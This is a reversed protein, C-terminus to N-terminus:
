TILKYTKYIINRKTSEYNRFINMTDRYNLFVIKRVEGIQNLNTDDIYPQKNNIIEAIYYVHKYCIDNSGIFYEVFNQNSTIIIDNSNYGTEETFERIACTLISENNNRRGKPISYEQETYKSNYLNDYVLDYINLTDYKKKATNYDNLFLRSEKNVWLDDWLKDFSLTLLRHKEEYTMEELLTKIIIKNKYKGRIFDIYGMTDKRQVLIFKIENNIKKYGIIGYSTIPYKCYKFTHGIKFCNICRKM